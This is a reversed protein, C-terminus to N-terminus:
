YVSLIQKEYLERYYGPQNKLEQHTGQQVLRGRRDGQYGLVFIQDVDAVAQLAHSIVICTRGQILKKLSVLLDSAVDASLSALPEDLLIISPQRLYCRAIAISIQEGGSFANVNTDYGSCQGDFKREIVDHIQADQCARIIQEDTADPKALLLNERVSGHKFFPKQTVMGFQARLSAMTYKRIDVGDLEIVGQGDQTELFRCLLNFITSKGCGRRGVLAVRQGAKIEFSLERLVPPSDPSYAFTVNRFAIKNRLPPMAQADPRDVVRPPTELIEFGEAVQPRLETYRASTSCLSVLLSFVSPVLTYFVFLEPWGGALQQTIVLWSGAGLIVLLTITGILSTTQQNIGEWREVRLDRAILEETLKRMDSIIWGQANNLQIEKVGIIGEFMKGGYVNDLENREFSVRELTPYIFWVIVFPIASCAALLLLTLQWNLSFLYAVYALLFIIDSLALVVTDCLLFQVATAAKSLQRMLEGPNRGMFFDVSQAQMYEFVRFQFLKSLRERLVEAWYNRYYELPVNLLTLGVFVCFATLWPSSQMLAGTLLGSQRAVIVLTVGAVLRAALLQWMTARVVRKEDDTLMRWSGRLFYSLSRRPSPPKQQPAPQPTNM